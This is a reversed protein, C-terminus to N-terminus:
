CRAGPDCADVSDEHAPPATVVRDDAIADEVADDV